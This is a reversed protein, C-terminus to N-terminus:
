RAQSSCYKSHTRYPNEKPACRREQNETQQEPFSGADDRVLSEPPASAEPIPELGTAYYSSPDSVHDATSCLGKLKSTDIVGFLNSLKPEPRERIPPHGHQEKSSQKTRRKSPVQAQSEARRQTEQELRIQIQATDM